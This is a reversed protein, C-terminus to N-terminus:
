RSRSAHVIDAYVPVLAVAELLESDTEILTRWFVNGQIRGTATQERVRISVAIPDCRMPEVPGRPAAVIEFAPDTGFATHTIAPEGPARDTVISLDQSPSNTGVAVEGFDIVERNRSVLAGATSLGNVAFQGCGTATAVGLSGAMDGTTDNEYYVRVSLSAGPELDAPLAESEISFERPSISLGTIRLRLAGRNRVLIGSGLAGCEADVRNLATWFEPIMELDPHNAGSECGGTGAGAVQGPRESAAASDRVSNGPVGSDVALAASSSSRGRASCSSLLGSATLVLSIAVTSNLPM